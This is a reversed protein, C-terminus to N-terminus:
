SKKSTTAPTAQSAQSPLDLTPPRPDPPCDPSSRSRYFHRLSPLFPFPLSPLLLYLPPSSPLSVFGPRPSPAAAAAATAATAPLLKKNCETCESHSFASHSRFPQIASHHISLAIPAPALASVRSPLFRHALISFFMEGYGYKEFVPATLPCPDYGDKIGHPGQPFERMTQTTQTMTMGPVQVRIARRNYM